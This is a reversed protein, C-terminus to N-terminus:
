CLCLDKSMTSVRLLIRAADPQGILSAACSNQDATESPMDEFLTVTMLIHKSTHPVKVRSKNTSMCHSLFRPTKKCRDSPRTEGTVVVHSAPKGRDIVGKQVSHDDPGHSPSYVVGCSNSCM